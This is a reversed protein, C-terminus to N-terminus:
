KYSEHEKEKMKKCLHKDHEYIVEYSWECDEFKHIARENKIYHKFLCRQIEQATCSLYGDAEFIGKIIIGVEKLHEEIKSNWQLLHNKINKPKYVAFEVQSPIVRGYREVAEKQIKLYLDHFKKSLYRHLRKYGQMNIEMSCIYADSNLMIQELCIDALEKLLEESGSKNLIKAKESDDKEFYGM